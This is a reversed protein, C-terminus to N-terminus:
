RPWDTALFEVPSWGESSLDVIKHSRSSRLVVAAEALTLVPFVDSFPGFPPMREQEEEGLAVVIDGEDVVMSPAAEAVVDIRAEDMLVASVLAAFAHEVVVADDVDVDVVAVDAAAVDAADVIM